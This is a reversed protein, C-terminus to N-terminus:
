APKIYEWFSRDGVQVLDWASVRKPNAAFVKGPANCVNVASWQERVHVWADDLIERRQVPNETEVLEEYATDLYEDYLIGFGPQKSYWFKAFGPGTGAGISCHWCWVLDNTQDDVWKSRMDLFDMPRIEPKLGVAEWYAACAEMIQPSSPVGPFAYSVVGFSYGEAGAEKILQRARDPNYVIPQDVVTAPPALNFGFMPEYTGAGAFFTKNIAERDLAINMAERVRIDNFPDGEVYGPSGPTRVGGLMITFAAITSGPYVQLGANQADPIREMSIPAVDAEGTELMALRTTEEPINLFVMKDWMPDIRWHKGEVPELTIKNGLIHEALRYPGTAVPARNVQDEGVSEMYAKPAIACSWTARLSSMLDPDLKELAFKITYDDEVTIFPVVGRLWPAAPVKSSEGALRNLSYAVDEATVEGNGKDWPVGKRIKLTWNKSDQTDWSEALGPSAAYINDFPVYALHEYVAAQPCLPLTTSKDIVWSEQGFTDLAVYLGTRAPAPAPTVTVVKEVIKPAGEVIVTEKVVKEVVKEVPKEVIVTEKVVQPACSALVGSGAAVALGKLFGRRTVKKDSM